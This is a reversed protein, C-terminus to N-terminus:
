EFYDDDEDDPMIMGLDRVVERFRERDEDDLEDWNRIEDRLWPL